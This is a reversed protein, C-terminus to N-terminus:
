YKVATALSAIVTFTNSVAFKAIGRKQIILWEKTEQLFFYFFLILNEFRGAM